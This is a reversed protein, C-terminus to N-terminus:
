RLRLVTFRFQGLEGDAWQVVAERHRVDLRLIEAHRGAPTQVRQGVRLNAAAAAPVLERKM